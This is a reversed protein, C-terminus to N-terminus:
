DASRVGMAQLTLLMRRVEESQDIVMQAALTRVAPLRANAAAFQAMPLGGRHHALMLRLFLEDRERGDLARLRSLEEASAMGTMGAPANRCDLLYQLLAADPPAAGLLMWDMGRAPPAAPQRWLRLWGRMEGIETLQAHAITRALGALPTPRGDLMLQAMAIAQQHHASMSQAFGVDIPGPELVALAARAQRAAHYQRYAIASSAAIGLILLAWPLVRVSIRRVGGSRPQAPM